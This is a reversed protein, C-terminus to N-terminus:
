HWWKVNKGSLGETRHFSAKTSKGKSYMGTFLFACFHKMLEFSSWALFQYLQLVGELKSTLEPLYWEPIIASTKGKTLIAYPWKSLLSFQLFNFTVSYMFHNRGSNRTGCLTHQLKLWIRKKRKLKEEIHIFYFHSCRKFSFVPKWLPQKM